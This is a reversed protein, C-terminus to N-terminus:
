ITNRMFLGSDPSFKHGFELCYHTVFNSVPDVLQGIEVHKRLVNLTDAIKDKLRISSVDGYRGFQTKVVISVDNIVDLFFIDWPYNFVSVSLGDLAHTM